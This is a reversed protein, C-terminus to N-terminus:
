KTHGLDLSCVCLLNCGQAVAPALPVGEAMKPKAPFFFFNYYFAFFITNSMIYIDCGHAM